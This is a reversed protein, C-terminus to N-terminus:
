AHRLVQPLNGQVQLKLLEQIKSCRLMIQAVITQMREDSITLSVVETGKQVTACGTTEEVEELPPNLGLGWRSPAKKQAPSAPAAVGVHCGM